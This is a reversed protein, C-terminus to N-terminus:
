AGAEEEPEQLELAEPHRKLYEWAWPQINYAFGSGMSGISSSRFVIKSAELGGAVGSGAGLRMTKTDLLLYEALVAKEEPSLKHLEAQRYKQLVRRKWRERTIAAAEFAAHGLLLAATLIFAVAVWARAQENLTSLGLYDLQEPTLLLFM